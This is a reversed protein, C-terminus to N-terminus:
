LSLVDCSSSYILHLQIPLFATPAEYLTNLLLCNEQFFVRIRSRPEPPTNLHVSSVSCRFQRHTGGGNLPQGIPCCEGM